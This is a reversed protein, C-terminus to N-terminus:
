RTYQAAEGPHIRGSVIRAETTEDMVHAAELQAKVPGPIIYVQGAANTVKEGASFVVFRDGPKIGVDLGGNLWATEGSVRIIFSKWPSRGLGNRVDGALSAIAKNLSSSLLSKDLGSSPNGMWLEKETQGTQAEGRGTDATLIIGSAVDVVKAVLVAQVIDKKKSLFKFWRLWGTRKQVQTIESVSGLVIANLGLARGVVGATNQTLPTPVRNAALYSEVRARPVVVIGGAEALNKALLDATKLSMEEGGLGATNEFPMVAIKMKLRGTFVNRKNWNFLSCGTLAVALALGLCLMFIAPRKLPM